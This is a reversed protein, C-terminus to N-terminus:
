STAGKKDSEKDANNRRKSKRVLTEKTNSEKDEITKKTSKLKCAENSGSSELKKKYVRKKPRNEETCPKSLM